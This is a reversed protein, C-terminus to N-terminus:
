RRRESEDSASGGKVPGAGNRSSGSSTWQCPVLNFATCSPQGEGDYCLEVPYEPDETGCMMSAALIPCGEGESRRYAADALCGSCWLEQFMEGETDNSPRYKGGGGAAIQQALDDPYLKRGGWDEALLVEQGRNVTELIKRLIAECQEQTTM